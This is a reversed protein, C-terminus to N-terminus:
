RLVICCIACRRATPFAPKRGAGRSPSLRGRGPGLAARAAHRPRAGARRAAHRLLCRRRRRYRRCAAPVAALHQTGHDNCWLVGNAGLTVCVERAGARHLAAAAQAADDQATLTAAEVRNVVLVDVDALMPVCDFCVPGPNLLTRRAGLRAARLVQRHRGREPQRALRDLRRRPHCRAISRRSRSSLAAAAENRTVITNEGRADVTIISLDTPYPVRM